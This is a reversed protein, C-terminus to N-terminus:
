TIGKFEIKYASSQKLILKYYILCFLNCLHKALWRLHNKQYWQTTHKKLVASLLQFVYKANKNMWLTLLYLLVQEM